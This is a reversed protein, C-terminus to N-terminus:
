KIQKLRKLQKLGLMSQITFTRVYPQLAMKSADEAASYRKTITLRTPEKYIGNVIFEEYNLKMGSESAIFNAAIYTSTPKQFFIFHIQQLFRQKQIGVYVASGDERGQIFTTTYCSLTYSTRMKLSSSVFICQYNAATPAKTNLLLHKGAGLRHRRRQHCFQRQETQKSLGNYNCKTENYSQMCKYLELM